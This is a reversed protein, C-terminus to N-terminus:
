TGVPALDPKKDGQNCKKLLKEWEKDVNAQLKNILEQNPGSRHTSGTEASNGVMAERPATKVENPQLAM